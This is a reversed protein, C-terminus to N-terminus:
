RRRDPPLAGGFRAAAGAPTVLDDRILWEYAEPLAGYGAVTIVETLDGATTQTRCLPVRPPTAAGGM